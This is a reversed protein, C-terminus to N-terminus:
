RWAGAKNGHVHYPHCTACSARAGGTESHCAACDKVSPLRLEDATKSGEMDHCSACKETRHSKHDFRARALWNSPIVPPVIAGGELEHCMRCSRDEKGFLADYEAQAREELVAIWPPPAAARKGPVSPSAKELIAGSERMSRLYAATIWDRVAAPQLGHPVRENVSSPDLYDTHCRACHQAFTIPRFDRGDPEGEHCSACELPGDQLDPKLHQAHNFKLHQERPEPAFEVHTAFSRIGAHDQHCEDCHASRVDVLADLGRHEAHCTGCAPDDGDEIHRGLADHCTRCTEDKVSSFSEVHCQACDAEFPRHPESVPGNMFPTERAYAFAAGVLAVAVLILSLFFRSRRLWHWNRFYTPDIRQAITKTKKQNKKAAM